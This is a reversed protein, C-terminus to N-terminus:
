NWNKPQQQQIKRVWCDANLVFVLAFLISIRVICAVHAQIHGNLGHVVDIKSLQQICLAFMFESYFSTLNIADIIEKM